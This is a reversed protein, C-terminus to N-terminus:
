GSQDSTAILLLGLTEVIQQRLDSEISTIEKSIVLNLLTEASRLAVKSSGSELNDAISELMFTVQGSVTSKIKEQERIRSRVKRASRQVQRKAWKDLEHSENPPLEDIWSYSGHDRIWKRLKEQRNAADWNIRRAMDHVTDPPNAM